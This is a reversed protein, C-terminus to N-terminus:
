CGAKGMDATEWRFQDVSGAVAKKAADGSGPIGIKMPNEPPQRPSIRSGGAARHVQRSAGRM